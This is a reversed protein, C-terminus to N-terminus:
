CCHIARSKCIITNEKLMKIKIDKCVKKGHTCDADTINDVNLHSYIDEKGPWLNESFKEWDKMYEYRCAGKQFM